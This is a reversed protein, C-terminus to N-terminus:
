SYASLEQFFYTREWRLVKASRKGTDPIGKDPNKVHGTRMKWAESQVDGLPPKPLSM